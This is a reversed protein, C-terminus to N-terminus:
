SDDGNLGILDRLRVITDSFAQENMVVGDKMGLICEVQGLTGGNNIATAQNLMEEIVADDLDYYEIEHEQLYDVIDKMTRDSM